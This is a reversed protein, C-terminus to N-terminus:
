KKEKNKSNFVLFGVKKRLKKILKGNKNAKFKTELLSPYKDLLKQFEPCIEKKPGKDASKTGASTEDVLM